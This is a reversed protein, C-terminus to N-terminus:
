EACVWPPWSGLKKVLHTWAYIQIPLCQFPGELVSVQITRYSKLCSLHRQFSHSYLAQQNLLLASTPIPKHITQFDGACAVVKLIYIHLVFVVGWLPMSIISGAVIFPRPKARANLFFIHIQHWGFFFIIIILLSNWLTM